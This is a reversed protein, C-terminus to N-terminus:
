LQAGSQKREQTRLRKARAQRTTMNAFELPLDVQMDEVWRLGEKLKEPSLANAGEAEQWPFSEHEILYDYFDNIASSTTSGLKEIVRNGADKKTTSMRASVMKSTM